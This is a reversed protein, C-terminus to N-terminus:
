RWDMEYFVYWGNGKASYVSANGNKANTKALEELKALPQDSTPELASKSYVYGCSSGAVSLGEAHVIFFVADPHDYTKVIGEAIGLKEFRSKYDSWRSDSIREKDKPWNAREGVATYTPSIRFLHSDQKSLALLEELAHRKSEFQRELRMSKMLEIDDRTPNAARVLDMITSEPIGAKAGAAGFIYGTYGEYLSNHKKFDMEGFKRFASIFKAPFKQFFEHRRDVDTAPRLLLNQGPTSQASFALVAVLIKVYLRMM